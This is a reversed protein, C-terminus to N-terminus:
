GQITSYKITIIKTKPNILTHVYVTEKENKYLAQLNRVPLAPYLWQNCIVILSLTKKVTEVCIGHTLLDIAWNDEWQRNCTQLCVATVQPHEKKGETLRWRQKMLGFTSRALKNAEHHLSALLAFDSGGLHEM